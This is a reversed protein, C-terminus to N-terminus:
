TGFAPPPNTRIDKMPMVFLHEFTEVGKEDKVPRHSKVTGYNSLFGDILHKQIDISSRVWSIYVSIFEEKWRYCYLQTLGAFNGVPGPVYMLKKELELVQEEKQCVIVIQDKFKNGSIKMAKVLDSYEDYGDFCKYHDLFKYVWRRKDAMFKGPIERSTSIAVDNKRDEYIPKRLRANLVGYSGWPKNVDNEKSSLLHPDGDLVDSEMVRTGLM